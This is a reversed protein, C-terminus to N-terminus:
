RAPRSASSSRRRRLRRGVRLGQRQDPREQRVVPRLGALRDRGDAHGADEARAPGARVPGLCASASASAVLLQDAPGPQLRRGARLRGRRPAPPPRGRRPRPTSVCACFRLVRRDAELGGIERHPVTVQAVRQMPAPAGASHRCPGRARSGPTATRAGRTPARASGGSRGSSRTRRSRWAGASRGRAPGCPPRRSPRAARVTACCPGARGLLHVVDGGGAAALQLPPDGGVGRELLEAALHRDLEAGRRVAVPAATSAWTAPRVARLVRGPQRVVLLEGGRSGSGPRARRAVVEVDVEHQAAADAELLEPHVPQGLVEVAWRVPTM